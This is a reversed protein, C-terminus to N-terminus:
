VADQLFIVTRIGPGDVLGHIGLFSHAGNDHYSIRRSHCHIFFYIFFLYYPQRSSSATLTTKLIDFLFLWVELCLAWVTPKKFDYKMHNIGSGDTM